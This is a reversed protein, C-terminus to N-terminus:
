TTVEKIVKLWEQRYKESGFVDKATVQGAKGVQEITALDLSAYISMISDYTNDALFGNVKDQIFKDEDWNHTTIVCLGSQMAEARTRPFSSYRTGSIYVNYQALINKYDEFNSVQMDKQLWPIGSQHLQELMETNNMYEYNAANIIIAKKQGYQCQKFEDKMGHWIYRGNKLGYNCWELMEKECCHVTLYDKHAQAIAVPDFQPNMYGSMYPEPGGHCIIIIPIHSEFQDLYIPATEGGSHLLAVDYDSWEVESMQIFHVNGPRPRQHDSWNPTILYFDSDSLANAIDYQHPTHTAYSLIKM